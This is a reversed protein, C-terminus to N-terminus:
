APREHNMRAEAADALDKFGGPLGIEAAPVLGLDALNALDARAGAHRLWAVLQAALAEGAAGKDGPDNDPVVRVRRCALLAPLLPELMRAAAGHRDQYGHVQPRNLMALAPWGLVAAALADLPGEVLLLDRGVGPWLRGDARRGAAAALIPLGFPWRVAGGTGPQNLYKGWRDGAQWDLRRGVLYGPRGTMTCCPLLCVRGWWALRLEGRENQRLIGAQRLLDARPDAALRAALPAGLDAPLMYALGSMGAPLCGRGALYADGEKCADPNMALLTDLFAGVAEVQAAEPLTPPEPRPAAAAPAPRPAPARRGAGPEKDSLCPPRWGALDALQHLAEVFSLGRIDVLYGLADGCQGSGYDHWTWGDGGRRGAGPPWVHCSPTQEDRLRCVYHPGSRKPDIGDQRLVALFDVRRCLEARDAPDLAARNM